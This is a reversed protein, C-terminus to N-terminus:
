GKKPGTAWASASWREITVASNCATTKAKPCVYTGHLAYGMIPQSDDAPVIVYGDNQNISFVYFIAKGSASVETYSLTTKNIVQKSNQKYFNEAVKQATETEIPSAFSLNSGLLLLLVPFILKKM